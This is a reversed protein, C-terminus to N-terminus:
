AQAWVAKGGEFRMHAPALGSCHRDWMAQLAGEFRQAFLPTDFLPSQSRGLVLRERFAALQQPSRALDLALAEYGALDQAVLEPLRAAKLLSSAVRSAFTPGELTLVPLGAWLADSCTTHAGCYLTDLFLDACAQRALHEDLPMHRAWVIRAPDIGRARAQAELNACAADSSRLMWLVSGPVQGLLRMWVDYIAPTVKFSNNFSAFVFGEQPLGLSARSPVAAAIPKTNDNVQYSDPLFVVKESYDQVDDPHVLTEDAVLYDIYDCGMSGPFGLYDVQVPAARNAFIGPRADHTYGKLDIAIDIGHSRALAAIEPDSKDSVEIFKDFAAVLRDRMGDRVQPGFAFAILEFRSRDHCEFLRATLQATAHNHFDASFYGLRIKAGPVPRAFGPAAAAPHKSRAYTQACQLLTAPTAPTALLAFPVSASEGREIRAILKRVMDDLGDWQCIHMRSHLLNGPLYPTGPALREVQELSAVAQAHRGLSALMAAKSMWVQADEPTLALARDLSAVAEERRGVEALAEGRICWAETLGPDLKLAQEYQAIADDFRRLAALSRGLNFLALAVGPRNRAAASFRAVALDHEGLASHAVGSEHLAEFFEGGKAMAQRLSSLAERAKGQQLQIKGLYFYAEASCGPLRTARLLSEECSQDQGRNGAIYALLEWAPAITPDRALLQKLVAEANSDFGGRFYREALALEQRVKASLTKM